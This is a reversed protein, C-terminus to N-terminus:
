LPKANVTLIYTKSVTTDAAYVTVYVLTLTELLPVVIPTSGQAKAKNVKVSAFQDEPIATIGINNQGSDLSVSYIFKDRQFVKTFTGPSISLVSLFANTSPLRFIKLLYTTRSFTDPALVTIEVRNEGPLLGKIHFHGDLSPATGNVTIVSQSDMPVPFLNISDILNPIPVSYELIEPNFAITLSTDAFSLERLRSESSPSRKTIIKYTASDKQGFVKLYLTDEGIPVPWSKSPIGPALSEANLTVPFAATITLQVSSDRFELPLHYEKITSSFIPSLSGKSTAIMKLIPVLEPLPTLIIPHGIFVDGQRVYHNEYVLTDNKFGRIRVTFMGSSLGILTYPKIDLISDLKGSFISDLVVTSDNPDLVVIELIDYQTLSDPLNWKLFEETRIEV